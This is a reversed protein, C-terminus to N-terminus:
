ILSLIAQGSATDQEFETVDVRNTPRHCRNRLWHGVRQFVANEFKVVKLVLGERFCNESDCSDCCYYVPLWYLPEEEREPYDMHIQCCVSEGPYYRGWVSAPDGAFLTSFALRIIGGELAGYRSSGDVPKATVSLIRINQTWTQEDDDFDQVDFAAKYVVRRKTSAWSWSPAIYESPRTDHYSDEETEVTYWLLQVELHQRWMGAVYDDHTLSEFWQAVGTIAILKDTDRTLRTGSYIEIARAWAEAVSGCNELQSFDKLQTELALGRVAPMLQTLMALGHAYNQPFMKPPRTKLGVLGFDGSLTEPFTECAGHDQCKWWVQSKAFHLTRNPLFREQFCWARSNLPSDMIDERCLSARICDYSIEVEDTAFFPISIKQIGDRIQGDRDFFCGISGDAAGTASINIASCSYVHGMKLSEQRWDEDDDQVICLSDIWLFPIGLHRSIIIAEKFTKSLKEDPIEDHLSQINDKVLMLHQLKGWCHSLTAYQFDNPLESAFVLHLKNSRISIFRKPRVSLAEPRCSTHSGTCNDLWSKALDLVAKDGTFQPPYPSTEAGDISRITVVMYICSRDQDGFNGTTETCQFVSDLSSNSFPGIRAKLQVHRRAILRRSHEETFGALVVRCFQCGSDTAFQITEITSHYTVDKWDSFGREQDLHLNQFIIACYTCLRVITGSITAHYTVNVGKSDTKRKLQLENLKDITMNYGLRM